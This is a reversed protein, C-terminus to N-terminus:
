GALAGRVLDPVQAFAAPLKDLDGVGGQAM